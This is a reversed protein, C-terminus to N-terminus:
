KMNTIRAQITEKMDAKEDASLTIDKDVVSLAQNYLAAAIEKNGNYQILTGGVYYGTTLNPDIQTATQIDEMFSSFAEEPNAAKEDFRAFGAEARGVYAQPLKPDAAIADDFAKLAGAYDGASMLMVGRIQDAEAVLRKNPSSAIIDNLFEAVKDPNEDKKIYLRALGLEAHDLRPDIALALGYQRIAEDIQGQLALAHAKGSYAAANGTDAKIAKDYWLSANGYDQTIEYGYAMLRLAESNNPDDNLIEKLVPAALAFGEAERFQESGMQLYATALLIREDPTNTKGQLAKIVSDTDNNNFADVAENYTQPSLYMNQKYVYAVLGVVLACFLFVIIVAVRKNM